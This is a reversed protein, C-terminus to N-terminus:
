IDQGRHSRMIVRIVPHSICLHVLSLCRQRMTFVRSHVTLGHTENITRFEIVNEAIMQGVVDCM